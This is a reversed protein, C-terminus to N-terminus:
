VTLDWLGVVGNCGGAVLQKGGDLFSIAFIGLQNVAIRQSVAKTQVDVILLADRPSLAPLSM